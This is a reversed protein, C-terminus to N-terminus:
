ELYASAAQHHLVRKRETLRKLNAPDYNGGNWDDTFRIPKHRKNNRQRRENVEGHQLRTRTRNASMKQTTANTYTM